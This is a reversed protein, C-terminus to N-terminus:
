VTPMQSTPQMNVLSLSCTSNPFEILLDQQSRFRQKNTKADRFSSLSGQERYEVHSLFATVPHCKSCLVCGSKGAAQTVSLAIGPRPGSGGSFHVRSDPQPCSAMPNLAPSLKPSCKVPFLAMSFRIAKKTRHGSINGNWPSGFFWSHAQRPLHYM